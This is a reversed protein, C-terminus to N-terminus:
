CPMGLHQESTLDTRKTRGERRLEPNFVNAQERPVAIVWTVGQIQKPAREMPAMRSVAM